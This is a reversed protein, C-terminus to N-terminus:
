QTVKMYYWMGCNPDFCSDNGCAVDMETRAHFSAGCNPCTHKWMRRPAKRDAGPLIWTELALDQETLWISWRDDVNTHRGDAGTTRIGFISWMREHFTDTHVNNTCPQGTHQEWMHVMEHALTQALELCNAHAHPNLVIVNRLGTGDHKPWFCGRKRNPLEELMIVPAPIGPADYFFEFHLRGELEYLTSYLPGLIEDARQANHVQDPM